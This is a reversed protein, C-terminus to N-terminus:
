KVKLRKNFAAIIGLPIGIVVAVLFALFCLQLTSYFAIWGKMLMPQQDITSFGWDGQILAWLYHLYDFIYPSEAPYEYTSWRTVIFTIVTLIFGTILLLNLRRLLYNLM